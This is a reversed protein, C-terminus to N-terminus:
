ESAPTSGSSSNGRPDGGREVATIARFVQDVEADSLGAEAVEKAAKTAWVRCSEDDHDMSWTSGDATQWSTAIAFEVALMLATRKECKARYEPSNYLPEEPAMDGKEPNRGVPPVPKLFLVRLRDREAVTLGRVEVAEGRLTITTTNARSGITKLSLM